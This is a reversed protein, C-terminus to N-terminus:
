EGRERAPSLLARDRFEDCRLLVISAAALSLRVEPDLGCASDSGAGSPVRRLRRPPAGGARTMGEWVDM